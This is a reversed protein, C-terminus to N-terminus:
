ALATHVAAAIAVLQLGLAAAIRLRRQMVAGALWLAITVALAWAVIVRMPLRDALWLLPLTAAISLALAIAAFRRIRRRTM